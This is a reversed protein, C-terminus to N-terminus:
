AADGEILWSRGLDAIAGCGMLIMDRELEQRFIDLVSRVGDEGDAALGYVFPRGIFVGQAGLCLAKIVDTGRRVGGDLYVDARDGIRAAIAPLADISALCHDLQRGGHNSVVVGDAGIRDIAQAADDPDLIGKLYFPGTWQDRMWAVDDWDLDAKMLRALSEKSSVADTLGSLPGAAGSNEAAAEKAAMELYHPSAIRRHRLTQYVWKWHRAMHLARPPTVTWPLTFTWRAEDERNGRTPVDVTVFLADFGALWARKMLEAMRARSGIPYLQFWHNERTAEGVEELSYSSATSLAARTGCSEAARAAAIDGTWHALGAAGVPALALPLSLSTRAIRASLDPRAEGTLSRQRLRWRGFGSRNAALTAMDDAGGDIYSWAMDPVTRRAKARWDEISLPPVGSNLRFRFAAM